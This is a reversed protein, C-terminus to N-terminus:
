TFVYKNVLPPPIFYVTRHLLFAWQSCYWAHAARLYRRNPSYFFKYHEGMIQRNFISVFHVFPSNEFGPMLM